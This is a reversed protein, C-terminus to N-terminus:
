MYCERQYYYCSYVLCKTLCVHSTNSLCVHSIILLESFLTGGRSLQSALWTSCVAQPTWLQLTKKTCIAISGQHVIDGAANAGSCNITICHCFYRWSFFCRTCWPHMLPVYNSRSRSHACHLTADDVDHVLAVLGLLVSSALVLSLIFSLFLSTM